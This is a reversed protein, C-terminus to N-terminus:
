RRAPELTISLSRTESTGVDVVRRETVYGPRAIEIRHRGPALVLLEDRDGTGQFQDDVYITADAPRVDLRLQSSGAADGNGDVGPDDYRDRGVEADEVPGDYRDYPAYPAAAYAEPYAYTEPYYAGYGYGYYYPTGLYLSFGSRYHSGYGYYRRNRHSSYRSDRTYSRGSERYSSAGREGGTRYGRSEGRNSSDRPAARYQRASGSRSSGARSDEHAVRGGRSQGSHRGGSRSDGRATASTGVLAGVVAVVLFSTRM